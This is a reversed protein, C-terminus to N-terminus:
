LDDDERSTQPPTTKWGGARRGATARIVGALPMGQWQAETSTHGPGSCTRYGQFSMSCYVPGALAPGDARRYM